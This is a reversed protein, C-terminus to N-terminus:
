HGAGASFACVRLHLQVYLLDRHRHIHKECTYGIAYQGAEQAQRVLANDADELLNEFELLYKLDKM